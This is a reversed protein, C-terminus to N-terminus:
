EGVINRFRSAGSTEQVGLSTEGANPLVESIGVLQALSFPARGHAPFDVSVGSHVFLGLRKGRRLSLSHGRHPALKVSRDPRM